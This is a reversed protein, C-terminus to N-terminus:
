PKAPARQVVQRIYDQLGLVMQRSLALQDRLTFYDPRADAALEPSGANALGTAGAATPLGPAPCRAKVLLRQRGDDVDRRLSQNQDLADKLEQTHKLDLATRDALMKAVSNAHEILTKVDAKAQQLEHVATDREKVVQVFWFLPILATLLVAFVFRMPTITM